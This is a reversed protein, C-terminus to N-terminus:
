MKPNVQNKLEELEKKVKKYKYNTVLNLVILGVAGVIVGGYIMIFDFLTM